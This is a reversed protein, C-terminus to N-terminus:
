TGCVEDCSLVTWVQACAMCPNRGHTDMLVPLTIHVANTMYTHVTLVAVRAPNPTAPAAAELLATSVCVRVISASPWLLGTSTDGVAGSGARKAYVRQAWGLVAACLFM